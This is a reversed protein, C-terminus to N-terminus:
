GDTGGVLMSRVAITPGSLGVLVAQGNKGCRAAGTSVDNGVAEIARLVEPGSGALTTENIPEALRGRRIMRGNNMRFVFDGTSEVVEGGGVQEAYVGLAIDGIIEGPDATGAALCTNSMRPIPPLLMNECRANPTRTVGLRRATHATTLYNVHRGDAVLTTPHATTGEDDVAYGGIGGPLTPDDTITVGPAAIMSGARDSYASGRLVEDAELAHCCAEHLLVIGRGGGVVVPFHGVPAPRADLKALAHRAAQAGFSAPDCDAWSGVLGPTYTGTVFTDGVSGVARISLYTTRRRDLRDDVCILQDTTEFDIMVQAIQPSVDRAGRDVVHLLATLGALDVVDVPLRTPASVLDTASGGFLRAVMARSVTTSAAQRFSEAMYARVCGGHRVTSSVAAVRSEVFRGRVVVASEVAACVDVVDAPRRRHLEATLGRCSDQLNTAIEDVTM